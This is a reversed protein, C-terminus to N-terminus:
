RDGGHRRRARLPSTRTARTDGDARVGTRRAALVMGLVYWPEILYRRWLRRPEAALRWAWELGAAGAARPPTPVVGAIYDLAAGAMLIANADLASRHDHVWHEQRPMGMGVLLLNPRFAAIQALVARSAASDPAPDFFGHAGALVLGPHSARLRAAAREFIGPRGGLAFVRWGGRAAADMLPGMWDVYTVRHDRRLPVGVLRALAIVSMGDAHTVDAAAHFARLKPDRNCLYVSHLNHNAVVIHEGGAIARAVRATLREIDYEGIQLGLLEHVRVVDDCGGDVPSTRLGGARAAHVSAGADPGAARPIM